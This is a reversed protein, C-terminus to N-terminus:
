VLAYMSGEHESPEYRIGDTDKQGTNDSKGCGLVLSVFLFGTAFMLYLKKM